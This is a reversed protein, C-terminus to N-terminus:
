VHRKLEKIENWLQTRDSECHALRAETQDLRENMGGITDKYTAAISKWGEIQLRQSEWYNSSMTARKSTFWAITGGIATVVLGLVGVAWNGHVDFFHLLEEGTM